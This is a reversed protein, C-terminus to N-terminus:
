KTAFVTRQDSQRLTWAREDLNIESWPLEAAEGLRACRELQFRLVDGFPEPLKRLNNAYTRLEAVGPTSKKAERKAPKWVRGMPNMVGDPLWRLVDGNDDYDFEIKNTQAMAVNFLTSLCARLKEM